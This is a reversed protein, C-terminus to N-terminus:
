ILGNEFLLTLNPINDYTPHPTPDNVHDAFMQDVQPRTYANIDVTGGSATVPTLATLQRDSGTPVSISFPLLKFGPIKFQLAYTWNVPTYAPDDTAVLEVDVEDTGLDISRVSLAYSTGSAVHLLRSVSPHFLVKGRAPVAAVEALERVLDLNVTVTGTPLAM